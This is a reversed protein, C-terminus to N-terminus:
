FKANKIFTKLLESLRKRSAKVKNKQFERLPEYSPRMDILDSVYFLGIAKKNIHKSCSFVISAEMDICSIGNNKFLDINDKEMLISSVTACDATQLNSFLAFSEFLVNDPSSFDIKIKKNLWDSVSEFNYAKKIIRMDGIKVGGGFHRQPGTTPLRPPSKTAQESPLTIEGIGGCSGFLYINQCPTDKLSLICDSILFNNQTSIISAHESNIVRFFAGKKFVQTKNDYFLHADNGPCIICHNKLNQSKIGFFKEFM